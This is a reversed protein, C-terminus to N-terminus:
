NIIDLTPTTRPTTSFLVPPEGQLACPQDNDCVAGMGAAPSKLMAGGKCAAVRWEIRECEGSQVRDDRV